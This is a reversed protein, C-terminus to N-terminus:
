VSNTYWPERNLILVSEEQLPAHKDLVATLKIDYKAVLSSFDMDYFLKVIQLNLINERSVLHRHRWIGPDSSKASTLLSELNLRCTVVSHDSIYNCISVQKVSLNDKNRTDTHDLIHSKEHTPEYVYQTQNFATLLEIHIRTLPHNPYENHINLNGSFLVPINEM